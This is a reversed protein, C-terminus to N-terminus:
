RADVKDDMLLAATTDLFWHLEGKQPDIARAPWEDPDGEDALSRSVPVSKRKGRAIYAVSRAANIAEPTLTLRWEGKSEISEAVVWRDEAQIVDSGPFISAVEGQEGIGLLVLDFRAEGEEEFYERLIQEYVTAIEKPDDECVIMKINEEPIPVFDIFNAHAMRFHHEAAQVPICREDSWFLYVRSWDVDKSEFAHPLLRYTDLPTFGGALSLSFRGRAEIAEKAQEAIFHASEQALQEESEFIHFEAM